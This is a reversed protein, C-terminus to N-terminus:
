HSVRGRGCQARESRGRGAGWQDLSMVINPIICKWTIIIIIYIIILLFVVMLNCNFINCEIVINHLLVFIRDPFYLQFILLGIICADKMTKNKHTILNNIGICYFTSLIKADYCLTSRLLVYSIKLHLNVINMSNFVLCLLKTDYWTKTCPKLNFLSRERQWM